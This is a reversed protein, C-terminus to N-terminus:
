ECADSRNVAATYSNILTKMAAKDDIGSDLVQIITFLRMEPHKPSTCTATKGVGATGTWVFRYDDTTEGDNTGSYAAAVTAGTDLRDWWTQALRLAAKGDVSVDCRTTGGNPKSIATALSDGGPLLAKVQAPDVTVGCLSTPVTYNEKATDDGGSCASLGSGLVVAASLTIASGIFRHRRLSGRVSLALLREPHLRSPAGPATGPCEILHGDALAAVDTRHEHGRGPVRGPRRAAGKRRHRRGDPSFGTRSQDAIAVLVKSASDDSETARNFIGQVEDRLATVDSETHEPVTTGKAARDPHINMTVTFGGGGSSIVTLNKAQGRTIAAELDKKFQRLEDRTDGLINHITTAQTRADGFEGATKGIFEETVQANMGAWDASNAAEHLGDEAQKKVEALHRVLQDWDSVAQDLTAFNAFRLADLHM